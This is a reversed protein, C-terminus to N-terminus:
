LVGVLFVLDSYVQETYYNLECGFGRSFSVAGGTAVSSSLSWTPGSSLELSSSSFGFSDTAAVSGDYVGAGFGSSHFAASSVSMSVSVGGPNSRIAARVNEANLPSVVYPIVITVVIEPGVGPVVRAPTGCWPDACRCAGAGGSYAWGNSSFPWVTSAPREVVGGQEPNCVCNSCWAAVRNDPTQCPTGSPTAIVVPEIIAAVRKRGICVTTGHDIRFVFGIRATDQACGFVRTGDQATFGLRMIARALGFWEQPTYETVAPLSCVGSSGIRRWPIPPFHSPWNAPRFFLPNSDEVLFFSFPNAAPSYAGGQGRITRSETAFTVDHITAISRIVVTSLLDLEEDALCAPMVGPVGDCAPVIGASGSCSPIM